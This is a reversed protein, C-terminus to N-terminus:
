PVSSTRSLTYDTVFIGLPNDLLLAESEPALIRVKFHGEFGHTAHGFHASESERWSIRYVGAEGPMKLVSSIEEVYRTEGRRLMQELAERQSRVERTFVALAQGSVFAQARALQVNFVRLDTPVTRLNHVFRRLAVQVAREPPEAASLQAAARVEGLADVEVVYPVITHARVLLIFGITLAGNTALAVLAVAQWIRRGRALDGFLREFAYRGELYAHSGEPRGSEDVARFWHRWSSLLRKV